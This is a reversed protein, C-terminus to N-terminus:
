VSSQTYELVLLIPFEGIVVVVRIPHLQSVISSPFILCYSSVAVDHFRIFYM